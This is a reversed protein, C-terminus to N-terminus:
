DRSNLRTDFCPLNGAVIFGGFALILLAAIWGGEAVVGVVLGLGLLVLVVVILWGAARLLAPLMALAAVAILIGGAITLM